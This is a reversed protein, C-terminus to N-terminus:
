TCYLIFFNLLNGEHPHGYIGVLNEAAIEVLRQSAGYKMNARKPTVRRSDRWTEESIDASSKVAEPFIIDLIQNHLDTHGIIQPTALPGNTSTFVGIGLDPYFTM